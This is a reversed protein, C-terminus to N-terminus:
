LTNSCPESIELGAGFSASDQKIFIIYSNQNNENLWFLCITM